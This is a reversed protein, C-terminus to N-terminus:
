RSRVYTVLVRLGEVKPLLKSGTIIEQAHRVARVPYHYFHDLPSTGSTDGEDISYFFM